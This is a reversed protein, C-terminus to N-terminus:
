YVHFGNRPQIRELEVLILGSKVTEASHFPVDSSQVEHASILAHYGLSRAYHFLEECTNRYRYLFESAGTRFTKGIKRSCRKPVFFDLSYRNM